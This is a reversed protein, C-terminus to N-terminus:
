LLHISPPTDNCGIYMYVANLITVTICSTYHTYVVYIFMNILNFVMLTNFDAYDKYLIYIFM